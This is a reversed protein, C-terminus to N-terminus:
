GVSNPYDPLRYMNGCLLHGGSIHKADLFLVPRMIVKTAFYEHYLHCVLVCLGASALLTNELNADAFCVNREHKVDNYKRWWSPNMGAEWEAWPSFTLGFKPMSVEVKPLGPFAKVLMDRYDDINRVPTDSRVSQCLVKAVVDIESGVTLLLRVLEVSHTGYNSPTIEVYRSLTVLDDVVTLYYQWHPREM